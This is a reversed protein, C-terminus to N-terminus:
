QQNWLQDMKKLSTVFVSQLVTETEPWRYAARNCFLIIGSSCACCTSWVTVKITCPAVGWIARDTYRRSCEANPSFWVILRYTLWAHGGLDESIVGQSKQRHPNKFDFTFRSLGVDSAANFSALRWFTDAEVSSISSFAKFPAIVRSVATSRFSPCSMSCISYNVTILSVQLNYFFKESTFWRKTYYFFLPPM